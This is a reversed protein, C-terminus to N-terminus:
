AIARLLADTSTVDFFLEHMSIWTSHLEQSLTACADDVLTVLFGQNAADIASVGVGFNTTCGAIVVHGVGEARLADSLPSGTFASVTRKEIILDGPRPEISEMFQPEREPHDALGLEVLENRYAPPWDRADTHDVRLRTLVVRGGRARMAHALSRANPVVSQEIRDFYYGPDSGRRCLAAEFPGGRAGELTLDVVVLCTTEPAAM